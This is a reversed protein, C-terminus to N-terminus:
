PDTEAQQIENASFSHLDTYFLALRYAKNLRDILTRLFFFRGETNIDFNFSDTCSCPHGLTSLHLACGHDGM